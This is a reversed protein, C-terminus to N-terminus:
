TNRKLQHWGKQIARLPIPINSLTLILISKKYWIISSQKIATKYQSFYNLYEKFPLSESFLLDFAIRAVYDNFCSWQYDTSFLNKIEEIFLIRQKIPIENWSHTIQGDRFGKIYHYYHQPVYKVKIDHALMKMIVLQDECCNLGEIFHIDFLKYCETKLLKNCLSGHLDNLMQGLIVCTEMSRPKQSMIEKHFPDERIIDCIVMDADNMRATLYMDNLMDTEIWDDSDVHISFLGTSAKVGNERANSVGSHDQSIHIFRKDTASYEEIIRASGDTSGDDVCIVEINRLSQTKISDLCRNLTKSSNYVTVIVSVLPTM